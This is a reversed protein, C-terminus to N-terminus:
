KADAWENLVVCDGIFVCVHMNKETCAYITILDFPRNLGDIMHVFTFLDIRHKIYKKIRM